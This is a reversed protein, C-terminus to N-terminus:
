GGLVRLVEEATTEGAIAKAMGDALMTTMGKRIAADRIESIDARTSVMEALEHDM